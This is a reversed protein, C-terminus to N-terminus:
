ATRQVLLQSGELTTINTPVAPVSRSPLPRPVFHYALLQLLRDPHLLLQVSPLGWTLFTGIVAQLLTLFPLTPYCMHVQCFPRSKRPTDPNLHLLLQVTPIRLIAQVQVQNSPFLM